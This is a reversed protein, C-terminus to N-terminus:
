FIAAHGKVILGSKQQLDLLTRTPWPPTSSSSARSDTDGAEAGKGHCMTALVDAFRNFTDNGLRKRREVFLSPSFIQAPSFEDLGLFFQMYPNEGIIRVTEVDSLGLKHKIILSGIVIRPDIATRGSEPFRRSYIKACEDWPFHAALQIWRNGPDLKMQYLNGFEEIKLQHQSTCQVM